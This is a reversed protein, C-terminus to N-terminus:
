ALFPQFQLFKDDCQGQVKNEEISGQNRSGWRGQGLHEGWGPLDKVEEQVSQCVTTETRGVM